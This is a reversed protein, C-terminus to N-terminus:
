HPDTDTDKVSSTQHYTAPPLLNERHVHPSGGSIGDKVWLRFVLKSGTVHFSGTLCVHFVLFIFVSFQFCLLPLHTM